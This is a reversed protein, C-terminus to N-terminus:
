CAECRARAAPSGNRASHASRTAAASRAREPAAASASARNSFSNADTSARESTAYSAPRANWRRPSSLRATLQYSFAAPGPPSGSM